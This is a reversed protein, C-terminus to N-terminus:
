PKEFPGLDTPATRAAGTRDLLVAPLLAGQNLFPAGAAPAFDAATHTIAAPWNQFWAMNFTAQNLETAGPTRGSLTCNFYANHTYTNAGVTTDVEMALMTAGRIPSGDDSHLM